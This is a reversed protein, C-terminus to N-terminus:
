DRSNFGRFWEVVLNSSIKSMRICFIEIPRIVSAFLIAVSVSISFNLFVKLNPFIGLFGFGNIINITFIFIIPMQVLYLPFSIEGLLQSVSSELWRQVYKSLLVFLVILIAYLAVVQDNLRYMSSFGGVFILAAIAIYELIQSGLVRRLWIDCKRLDVRYLLSGVHFCAIIPMKFLLIAALFIDWVKHINGMTIHMYIYYHLGLFSM